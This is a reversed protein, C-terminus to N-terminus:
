PSVVSLFATDRIVSYHHISVERFIPHSVSVARDVDDNFVIYGRFVNEAKMKAIMSPIDDTIAIPTVNSNEQLSTFLRKSIASIPLFKRLVRTNTSRIM